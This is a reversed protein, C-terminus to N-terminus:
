LTCMVTGKIKSDVNEPHSSVNNDTEQLDLQMFIYVYNTNQTEENVQTYTSALPSTIMKQVTLSDLEQQLLKKLKGGRVKM